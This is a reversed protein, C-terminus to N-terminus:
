GEHAQIFAINAEEVPNLTPEWTRPQYWDFNSFYDTLDQSRFYRGNRAFIENRAIRLEATTLGALDAETLRRESSDPFIFGSSTTRPPEDPLQVRADTELPREEEIQRAVTGLYPLVVVGGAFVLVLVITGFRLMDPLKLALMIVAVLAIVAVGGTLKERTDMQGIISPLNEIIKGIGIDVSGAGSGQPM